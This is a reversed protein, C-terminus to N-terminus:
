GLRLLLRLLEQREGTDLPALTARTVEAAAPIAREILATGAPSLSVVLMRRDAAARTLLVLDRKALRDVVGKITAADMAALRGLHTQSVPGQDYLKVMASFQTPTLQDPMKDMFISVHRQTVQRLVFGVNEELVYTKKRKM